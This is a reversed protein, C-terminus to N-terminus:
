KNLGAKINEAAQVKEAFQAKANVGGDTENKTETFVMVRGGRINLETSKYNWGACGTLMAALLCIIVGVSASKSELARIASDIKAELAGIRTATQIEGDLMNKTMQVNARSHTLSTLYALLMAVISVITSTHYEGLGGYAKIKEPGPVIQDAGVEALVPAAVSIVAVLWLIAVFNSKSKNTM